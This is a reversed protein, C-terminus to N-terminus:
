AVGTSALTVRYTNLAQKGGSGVLVYGTAKDYRGTGDVVRIVLSGDPLAEVKGGLKLTGDPLTATGAFTATHASTFTMTGHDSGVVAGKPHGFRTSTNVLRNRQEITDGKSTGKPPFDTPKVFVVVSTVSFTITEAQAAPALVAAALAAVVVLRM